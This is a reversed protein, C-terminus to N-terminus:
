SKFINKLVNGTPFTSVLNVGFQQAVTRWITEPYIYDFCSNPTCTGISDITVSSMEAKTMAKQTKFNFPKAHFLSGSIGYSAKIESLKYIQSEGIIQGGKVNGGLLICSNNYQNHGTGDSGDPSATRAFESTMVITTVDFLSKNASDLKYPTEKMFKILKAVHEFGASLNKIHNAKHSSHTDLSGDNTIDVQAMKLFGSGLGALALSAQAMGTNTSSAVANVKEVLKNLVAITDKEKRKQALINKQFSAAPTDDDLVTEYPDDASDSFSNLNKTSVKEGYNGDRLTEYEMHYGIRYTPKQMAQALAFPFFTTSSTVNGSSMYERNTEHASSQLNMMVGNIICLDDLYGSLPEMCVGLQGDKYQKVAAREDFALFEAASFAATNLYEKSRADTMLLTDWAGNFRLVLLLKDSDAEQAFLASPMMSGVSYVLGANVAAQIFQRRDMKIM